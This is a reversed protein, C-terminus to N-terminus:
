FEYLSFVLLTGYVRQHMHQQNLINNSYVQNGLIYLRGKAVM